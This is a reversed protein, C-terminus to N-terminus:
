FFHRVGLAIRRPKFDEGTTLVGEAKNYGLSAYAFTRKSLGHSYTLTAGIVDIDEGGRDDKFVVVYVTGVGIGASASAYTMKRRSTAPNFSETQTHALGVGYKGFKAGVAIGIEKADRMGPTDGSDINQYALGVNVPGFSGVGGVAYADGMKNDIPESADEGAAYAAHVTVGGLRPSQYTGANAFRATWGGPGVTIPVGGSLNNYWSYGTVDGAVLARFMPTYQRGFRFTGFSGQLGLWSQGAWFQSRDGATTAVNPNTITGTDTSLRHEINFIGKLGGGIDETGSITMRSGSWLGDSVRVDSGNRTGPVRGSNADENVFELAADISGSLTVSTQAYSFHPFIGLLALPLLSRIM